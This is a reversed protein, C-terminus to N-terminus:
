RRFPDRETGRYCPRIGERYRFMTRQKWDTMDRLSVDVERCHSELEAKSFLLTTVNRSYGKYGKAAMYADAHYRIERAVCAETLLFEEGFHERYARCLWDAMRGYAEELGLAKMCGDWRAHASALDVSFGEAEIAAYEELLGALEAEPSEAFTQAGRVGRKDKDSM